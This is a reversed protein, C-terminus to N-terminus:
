KTGKNLLWQFFSLSMPPALADIEKVMADRRNQQDRLEEVKKRKELMHLLAGIRMHPSAGAIARLEELDIHTM